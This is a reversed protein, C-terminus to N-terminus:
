QSHAGLLETLFPFREPLQPFLNPVVCFGRALGGFDGPLVRLFRTLGGLPCSGLLSRDRLLHLQRSSAYLREGIGEAIGCGPRFVGVELARM